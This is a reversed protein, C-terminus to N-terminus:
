PSMRAKALRQYEFLNLPQNPPVSTTMARDHEPGVHTVSAFVSGTPSKM